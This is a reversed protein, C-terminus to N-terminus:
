CFLCLGSGPGQRATPRFAPPCHAHFGCPQCPPRHPGLQEIFIMILDEETRARELNHRVHVFWEASRPDAEAELQAILADTLPLLQDRVSELAASIADDNM